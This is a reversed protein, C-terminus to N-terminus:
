AMKKSMLAHPFTIVMVNTIVTILVTLFNVYLNSICKKHIQLDFYAYEHLRVSFSLLFTNGLIPQGKVYGLYNWLEKRLGEEESIKIWYKGSWLVRWFWKKPKKRYKNINKSTVEVFSYNNANDNYWHCSVTLVYVFCTGYSEAKVYLSPEVCYM